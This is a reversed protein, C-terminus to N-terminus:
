VWDDSSPEEDEEWYEQEEEEEEEDEEEEEEEEEGDGSMGDEVSDKDYDMNSGNAEEGEAGSGIIALSEPGDHDQICLDAAVENWDEEASEWGEDELGLHGVLGAPEMKVAPLATEERNSEEPGEDSSM